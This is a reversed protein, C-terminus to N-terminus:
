FSKPKCGTDKELRKRLIHYSLNVKLEPNNKKNKSTKFSKKGVKAGLIM